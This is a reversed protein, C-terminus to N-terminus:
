KVLLLSPNILLLLGLVVMIIGGILNAIYSYKTAIGIKDFSFIAIGFVIFDDIMYFLIYLFIYFNSLVPGLNNLELIKTFAQPIGISCAFEIVNVSLALIIIGM